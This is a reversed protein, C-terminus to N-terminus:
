KVRPDASLDRVCTGLGMGEQAVKGIVTNLGDVFEFCTRGAMIRDNPV